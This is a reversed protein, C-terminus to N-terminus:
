IIFTQIKLLPFDTDSLLKEVLKWDLEGSIPPEGIIFINRKRAELMFIKVQELRSSKDKDFMYGDGLQQHRDKHSGFAAGNKKGPLNKMSDNFHFLEIYKLGIIEDFDDYFKEIEGNKGMDYSGYGYSHATDWCIKIQCRLNKSVGKIVTYIEELSACLTTGAGASNEIIVKRQKIFDDENIELLESLKKSESTKTTLVYEISKSIRKLGKDTDKASGPHIIVGTKLAVGFDLEATLGKLTSSLSDKYNEDTKGNTTGALNYVLSGHIVLYIENRELIKRSAMLDNYDFKPPIKSRSNSTYIQMAQLPTNKTIELITKIMTPYKQVHYGYRYESDIIRIM